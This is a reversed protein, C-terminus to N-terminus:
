TKKSGLRNFLFRTIVLSLKCVTKCTEIIGNRTFIYVLCPRFHRYERKFVFGKPQVSSLPQSIFRRTYDLVNELYYERAQQYASSWINEDGYRRLVQAFDVLLILREYSHSFANVALSILLDVPSLAMVRINNFVVPRAKAWIREMDCKKSSLGMLWSANFIHWHLDVTIARDIGVNSKTLTISYNFLDDLQEKVPSIPRYGSKDLIMIIKIRDEKKVLLDIDRMPRLAINEYIAAALFAGKLVIVPIREQDLAAVVRTLEEYFLANQASYTYYISKLRALVPEPIFQKWLNRKLRDYILGTVGERGAIAIIYDWDLSERLIATIKDPCSGETVLELSLGWILEDEKRM